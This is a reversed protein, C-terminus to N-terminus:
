QLGVLVLVLGEGRELSGMAKGLIAGQARSPDDVRMAHGAVSSTTLLDGPAIAGNAATARCYVRGTLAVAHAGDAASGQQGMLMGTRVGGAGSIIGAVRRDYPARSTALRGEHDPDISVVTGPEIATEDGLDFRESLDAGGLIELVKTHTVGNNDVWFVSSTGNNAVIFNGAAERQLWLVEGSGENEMHTTAWTSNNISYQCMGTNAQLNTLRLTANTRGMGNNVASIASGGVDLNDVLIGLGTGHGRATLGTANTSTGEVHAGTQGGYAFLGTSNANTASVYAGTATGAGVLGTGNPSAIARGEVGISQGTTASALGQVGAAQSGTSFTEGIVGYTLSAGSATGFRAGSGTGGNDIQFLTGASTGLQRFPLSLGMAFPTPNLRQRPLATYAGTSAGQRVEVTLWRAGVSYAGFGFDLDVAFIGKTVQLDNVVITSGVQSGGVAADFLSFRFDYPDTPLVGADALSGQYTFATGIDVAAASRALCAAALLALLHAHIRFRRSM